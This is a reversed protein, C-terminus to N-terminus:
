EDKDSHEFYITYADGEPSNPLILQKVKVDEGLPNKTLLPNMTFALETINNTVAVATQMWEGFMSWNSSSKKIDTSLAGYFM